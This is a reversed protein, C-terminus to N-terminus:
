LGSEIPTKRYTDLPYFMGVRAMTLVCMLVYVDVEKGQM